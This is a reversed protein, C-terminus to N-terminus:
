SLPDWTTVPGFINKAGPGAHTLGGSSLIRNLYIKVGCMCRNILYFISNICSTVDRSLGLPKM